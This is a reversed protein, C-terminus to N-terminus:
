GGPTLGRVQREVARRVEGGLRVGPDRFWRVRLM